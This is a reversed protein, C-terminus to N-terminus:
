PLLRDCPHCVEPEPRLWRAAREGSGCRRDHRSLSRDRGDPPQGRKLSKVVYAQGAQDAPGTGVRPQRATRGRQGLGRGARLFRSAARYLSKTVVDYERVTVADEGADSLSILCRREAPRLRAKGCGTAKETAALADLDLVTEWQLTVTARARPAPAVGSAASMTPMRGSITSRGASSVAPRTVTRPKPSRWRRTTSIKYRPDAELEAFTLANHAAIWQDVRPPSNKWGSLSRGDAGCEGGCRERELWRQRLWCSM